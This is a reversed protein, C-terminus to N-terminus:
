YSLLLAQAHPKKILVRKCLVKVRILYPMHYGHAELMLNFLRNAHIEYNVQVYLM